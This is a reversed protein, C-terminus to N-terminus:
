RRLRRRRLLSWGIVLLAWRFPSPKAAPAALACSEEVTDHCAAPERQFQSTCSLLNQLHTVGQAPYWTDAGLQLPDDWPVLWVSAGLRPLYAAFVEAGIEPLLGPAQCPMGVDWSGSELETNVALGADGSSSLVELIRLRLDGNAQNFGVLEARLLVRDQLSECPCSVRDPCGPSGTQGSEECGAAVLLVLALASRRANSCGMRAVDQVIGALARM